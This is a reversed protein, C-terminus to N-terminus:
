GLNVPLVPEVPEIPFNAIGLQLGSGIIAVTLFSSEVIVEKCEPRKKSILLWPVFFSKFATM